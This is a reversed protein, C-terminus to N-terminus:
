QKEESVKLRYVMGDPPVNLFHTAHITHVGTQAAQYRIQADLLNPPILADDNEAVKKGAPDFLRLFPDDFGNNAGRVAKMDIVYKKGKELTVSYEHTPKQGGGFRANLPGNPRLTAQVEVGVTIPGGSPGFPWFGVHYAGALFVILALYLCDVSVSLGIGTVALGKGRLQGPRRSIQTLAIIGLVISPVSMAFPLVINALAFIASALANGSLAARKRLAPLPPPTEWPDDATIDTPSPASAHPLLDEPRAFGTESSNEPLGPAAM